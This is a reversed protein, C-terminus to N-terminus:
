KKNKAIVSWIASSLTITGGIIDELLSEDIIGKTVYVAGVFTLTHRILGLIKDKNLM